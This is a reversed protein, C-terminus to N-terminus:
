TIRRRPCSEKLPWLARIVNTPSARENKAEKINKEVRHKQEDVRDTTRRDIERLLHYTKV